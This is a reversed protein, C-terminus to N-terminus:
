SSSWAKEFGIFRTNDLELSKIPKNFHFLERRMGNTRPHYVDKLTSDKIKVQMTATRMTANASSVVRLLSAVVPQATEPAISKAKAQLKKFTFSYTMNIRDFTTNSVIIDYGTQDHYM